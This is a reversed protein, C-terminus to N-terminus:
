MLRCLIIRKGLQDWWKWCAHIKSENLWWQLHSKLVYKWTHFYTICSDFYYLAFCSHWVWVHCPLASFQSKKKENSHFRSFFSLCLTRLHVFPIYVFLPFNLLFFYIGLYIKCYVASLIFTSIQMVHVSIPM